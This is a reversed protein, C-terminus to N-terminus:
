VSFFGDNLFCGRLCFAMSVLRQKRFYFSSFSAPHQYLFSLFKRHMSLLVSEVLWLTVGENHHVFWLKVTFQREHKQPFLEWHPTLNFRRSVEAQSINTPVTIWGHNRLYISILALQNQLSRVTLTQQLRSWVLLVSKGYFLLLPTSECISFKNSNDKGPFLKVGRSKFDVSRKM